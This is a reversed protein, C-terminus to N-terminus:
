MPGIAATAAPLMHLTTQVRRLLRGWWPEAFGARDAISKIIGDFMDRPMNENLRFVVHRRDTLALAPDPEVEYTVKDVIGIDKLVADLNAHFNGSLKYAKLIDLAADHIRSRSLDLACSPLRAAQVPDGFPAPAAPKTM